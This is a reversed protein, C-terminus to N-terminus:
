NADENMAVKDRKSKGRAAKRVARAILVAQAALASPDSLDAAKALNANACLGAAIITARDTLSENRAM